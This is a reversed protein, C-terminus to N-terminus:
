KDNKLEHFCVFLLSQHSFWIISIIAVECKLKQLHGSGRDFWLVLGANTGVALFEPLADVCTLNLDDWFIGRQVRQPVQSLLATLPAWERLM